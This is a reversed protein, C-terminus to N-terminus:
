PRTPSTRHQWCTGLLLYRWLPLRVGCLIPWRSGDPCDAVGCCCAEIGTQHTCHPYTNAFQANARRWTKWRHLVSM